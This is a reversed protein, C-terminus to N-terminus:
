DGPLVFIKGISAFREGLVSILGGGGVGMM